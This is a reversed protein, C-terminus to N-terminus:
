KERRSGLEFNCAMHVAKNQALEGRANLYLLITDNRRGGGRKDVHEFSVTAESMPKGCMTVGCIWNQREAMRLTRAKYEAKGAANEQCIERGDRTVKVAVAERRVQGPRPHALVVSDRRNRRRTKAAKEARSRTPITL